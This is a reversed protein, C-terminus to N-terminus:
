RGESRVGTAPRPLCHADLLESRVSRCSAVDEGSCETGVLVRDLEVKWRAGSIDVKGRKACDSTSYFALWDNSGSYERVMLVSGSQNLFVEGRAWIGGEEIRCEKGADKDRIRLPPEPFVDVEGETRESRFFLEISGRSGAYMGPQGSDAPDVAVRFYECPAAFCATCPLGLVIFLLAHVATRTTTGSKMSLEADISRM